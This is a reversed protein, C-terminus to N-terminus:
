IGKGHISGFLTLMAYSTRWWFYICVWDSREQSHWVPRNTHEREQLKITDDEAGKKICASCPVLFNTSLQILPYPWIAGWFFVILILFERGTSSSSTWLWDCRISTKGLLGLHEESNYSKKLLLLFLSNTTLM